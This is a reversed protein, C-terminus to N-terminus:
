NVLTNAGVTYTVSPGTGAIVTSIRWTRPLPASAATNAAVTAGPCVTLVTEGTTTLAASALLTYYNGSVSDKGQVTVTLTPGTGSIASINVPVVACVGNYNTQDASTTGASAATQTLVTGLDVNSRQKDWTTGNYISNRNWILMAPASTSAADSPAQFNSNNLSVNVNQPPPPAARKLTVFATVTGSTYSSVRVNLTSGTIPVVYTATTAPTFAGTLTSLGSTTLPYYITANFTTGVGAVGDNAQEFIVQNGSGISTFQVLAYAYGAPAVKVLNTASTVSNTTVAGDTVADLPGTSAILTSLRQLQRKLLAIQSCTGTDTSCAGDAQAGQTAFQGDAASVGQTAPLNMVHVQSGGDGNLAAQLAATAAGTPLPLTPPAQIALQGSGNIAAQNTGGADYLKVGGILASGAGLGPLSIVNVSVRGSSDVVIGTPTGDNQLGEMVDRYHFNGGVDNQGALNVTAGAGNKVPLISASQAAAASACGLALAAALLPRLLFRM